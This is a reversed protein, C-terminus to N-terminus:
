STSTVRCSPNFIATSFLPPSASMSAFNPSCTAQCRCSLIKGEATVRETVEFRLERPILPTPYDLQLSYMHPRVQRQLELLDRFGRTTILAVKAGKKQILTNTAITTGHELRGLSGLDLVAERCVANIGDIIARQPGAPTSPLKYIHHRCAQGDYAYVDTFTGGVDVGVVWM